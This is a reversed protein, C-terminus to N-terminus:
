NFDAVVEWHDPLNVAHTLAEAFGPYRDTRFPSCHGLAEFIDECVGCSRDEPHGQQCQHITNWTAVINHMDENSLPLTYNRKGGNAVSLVFAFLDNREDPESYLNTQVDIELSGHAEAADALGTGNVLRRHVAGNSPSVTMSATINM